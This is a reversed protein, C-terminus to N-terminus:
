ALVASYLHRASKIGHHHEVRRDGLMRHRLFQLSLRQDPLVHRLHLVRTHVPLPRDHQVPHEEHERHHESEDAGASLKHSLSVFYFCCFGM